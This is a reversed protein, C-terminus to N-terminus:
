FEFEFGGIPFFSWQYYTDPQHTGENWYYMAVNKHNYANWLSLYVILSSHAFFFRRDVRLNLSHYDPYREAQFRSTDYIGTNLAPSRTLDFPTYPIGGAYGWRASFEWRHNPKYGGSLNFLYRNDYVRDRWNGTFDQYRSRFYAASVLGYFNKALKKQVSFEIGRAVANGTAQLDGYNQFYSMFRGDDIIFSQPALSSLPFHRYNKQYIELNLRTAATLFYTLGAVHQQAEPLNLNQATQSLLFAPLQQYSTGTAVYLALLPNVQFHLGLRPSAVVRAVQSYYDGRVGWRFSWQPHPTWQYNFFAGLRHYNFKENLTRAPVFNGAANTSENYFYQYDDMEFTADVGFELTNGPSIQFFSANRFNLIGEFYDSQRERIQTYTDTWEAESQVFSYSLSTNSFGRRNWLARWNMGITNQRTSNAGFAPQDSDAAETPQYQISNSGFINLLTISNRSDLDYDIKVQLDGYRPAVGTGIADVILDLYSRRGALIWAGKKRPLPGELCGGFGGLSLDIQSEIGEANGKRYQIDVIASLRDGFAPSFGGAYFEVDDILEINLLGIAGGTAGQVPFHNINPLQIQNVFFGNEFPSGGRVMLDNANDYVQATSPLVMLIRSVDGAADPARRIEEANFQIMSTQAEPEHRFFDAVVEVAEGSIISESLEVECATIRDPRVLVDARTFPQYGIHRFIVRYNGAPLNAFTFKGVSDTATGRSLEQLTVNVGWLPQQSNESVVKGSIIGTTAFASAIIGPFIWFFTFIGWWTRHANLFQFKTQM